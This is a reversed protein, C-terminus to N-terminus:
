GQALPWRAVFKPRAGSEGSGVFSGCLSTRSRWASRQRGWIHLVAAPRVEELLESDDVALTAFAWATNALNQPNFEWIKCVAAPRVAELLESEEVALTAFAWATNALDQPNFEWIHLVAAPSLAQLLESDNVSRRSPGPPAPSSWHM